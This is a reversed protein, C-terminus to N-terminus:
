EPESFGLSFGDIGKCLCAAVCAFDEVTKMASWRNCAILLMNGGPEDPRAISHFRWLEDGTELNLGVLFGGEPIMTATVGQLVVGNAVMPASRLSYPLRLPEEHQPTEIEHKWILEGTAVKLAVVQM